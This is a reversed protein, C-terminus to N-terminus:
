FADHFHIIDYSFLSFNNKPKPKPPTWGPPCGTRKTHSSTTTSKSNKKKFKKNHTKSSKYPGTKFLMAFLEQKSPM